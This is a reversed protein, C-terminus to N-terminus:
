YKAECDEASTKLAMNPHPGPRKPLVVPEAKLWQALVEIAEQLQDDKGDYFTRPNNEVEIDPEVGMQEIGMGWGFNNSYTGIEPATAIGGDVLHNDSALWIGGGWTRKGILKGLKLESIGRSFGEGDSSTGEDILVVLHGRFAFMEDWGEGGTTINTARSEWFTWAQRQLVDLLWSDINGGLNHRVDIILADKNYDPFFGRTFADMASAGMDRLHIYGVTFGKETALRRADERTEWEWASYRLDAAAEISIPVVIVADQREKTDGSGSRLVDLRVSRGAVGRLLYNIDPVSLVSEGNVGLIVDGPKLGKQGSIALTRESLPSYMGDVLDFDPDGEHISLIIYGNHETSRKLFAGLSSVDNIKKLSSSGHLPDAYEGGYVFVHLASLESSMLELVNDLEERKSCRSVLPKYREYVALWDVQHLEPDYFYDRMMRWADCYMQEYELHPMISLALDDTDAINKLVDTDTALEAVGAATNPVIKLKGGLSLYIFLKNTSTGYSQLEKHTDFDIENIMDGPFDDVGFIKVRSDGGQNEVLIFSPDDNLQCIIARYNGSPIGIVRYARRAFESIKGSSGFNIELDMPNKASSTDNSTKNSELSTVNQTSSGLAPTDTESDKSNSENVADFEADLESLLEAAGGGIFTGFSGKEPIQLPIAYVSCKEPFYPSPARTGWPSDVDTLSIDRDSLFYLMTAERQGAYDAAASLADLKFDFSTRGWVPSKSNFRDPTAQVVNGRVIKGKSPDGLDAISIIEFQNAASHSIAIYRGAPSWNLSCMGVIPQNRNNARKLKVLKVHTPQQESSSSAVTINPITMALIRGDTDVWAARRGCPSVELTEAYISGLGGAITPGGNLHGGLIPKPLEDASLFSPAASAGCDVVYFALEATPSLPDTALILATNNSGINNSPIYKAALVRVIGGVTAGPIVRYRRLPLNQATGGAFKKSAEPSTDSIVPTVWAQGRLGLLVKTQKFSTTFVDLSTIDEPIIAPFRREQQLNFDSYVAIHLPHTKTPTTKLAVKLEEKDSQQVRNSASSSSLIASIEQARLIEFDAGIRL